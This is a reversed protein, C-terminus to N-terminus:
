AFDVDYNGVILQDIMLPCNTIGVQYPQDMISRRDRTYM